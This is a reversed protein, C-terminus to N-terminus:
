GVIESEFIMEYPRDITEALQPISIYKSERRYERGDFFLILTPNTFANYRAPIEPNIGSNVFALEMKEFSNDLLDIVKPRLSLCPACNDNYFYVMVAPKEAVLKEVQEISNLENNLM